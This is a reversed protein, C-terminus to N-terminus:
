SPLPGPDKRNEEAHAEEGTNGQRRDGRGIGLRLLAVENEMIEMEPRAFGQRLQLDMVPRDAMRHAIRLSHRAVRHQDKVAGVPAPLLKM